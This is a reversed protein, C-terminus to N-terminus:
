PMCATPVTTSCLDFESQGRFTGGGIRSGKGTATFPLQMHTNLTHTHTVQTHTHTHTHTHTYAHTHTHTHTHTLSHTHTFTNRSVRYKEEIDDERRKAVSATEQDKIAMEDLLTKRKEALQLSYFLKPTYTHTPLDSSSHTHTHTHTHATGSSSVRDRTWTDERTRSYVAVSWGNWRESSSSQPLFSYHINRCIYFLDVWKLIMGTQRSKQQRRDLIVKLKSCSWEWSMLYCRYVFLCVSSDSLCISLHTLYVSLCVSQCVLWIFLCVSQHTLYVSLCVSLYLHTLYTSLLTLYVSLCISLLTLYVSLCISLLTLYVSLCVSLLVTLYVSLCIFPWIFLCVSLLTLYVSLYFPWIFLCCVCQSLQLICEKKDIDYLQKETFQTLGKGIM